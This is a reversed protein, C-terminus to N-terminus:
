RSLGILLRWSKIEEFSSGPALGTGVIAWSGCLAEGLSRLLSSVYRTVNLSRRMEVEWRLPMMFLGIVREACLLIRFLIDTPM